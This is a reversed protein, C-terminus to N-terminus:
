SWPPSFFHNEVRDKVRGVVSHGMTEEKQLARGIGYVGAFTVVGVLPPAVLAFAGVLGTMLTATIIRGSDPMNQNGCAIEGIAFPVNVVEAFIRKLTKM